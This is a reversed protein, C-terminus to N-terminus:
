EAAEGLGGTGPVIQTSLHTASLTPSSKVKPRVTTFRWISLVIMSEVPRTLSLFLPKSDKMAVRWQIIFGHKQIVSMRAQRQFYNGSITETIREGEFNDAVVTTDITKFM